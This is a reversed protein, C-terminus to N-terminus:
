AENQAYNVRILNKGKKKCEILWSPVEDILDLEDSQIYLDFISPSKLETTVNKFTLTEGNTSEMDISITKVKAYKILPMSGPLCGLASRAIDGPNDKEENERAREYLYM